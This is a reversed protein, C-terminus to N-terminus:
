PPKTLRSIVRMVWTTVGAMGIMLGSALGGHGGVDLRIAGGVPPQVYGGTM